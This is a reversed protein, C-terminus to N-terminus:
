EFEPILAEVSAVYAQSEPFVGYQALNLPGEYYAAITLCRSNGEVGALYALFAASMRINDSVSNINMREGILTNAIFSATAPMIQGTGIAGASSVVDQQWGSEQWAIAELLPLSLDYYNAWREFLPQLALRNPSDQLPQPLVGWPGSNAQFSSCFSSANVTQASGGSSSSSSSGTGASGPIVLQTGIPLVNNPNLGNAEALQDVTIGNARSIAWLSDGSRVTYNKTAFGAAGAAILLGLSAMVITLRIRARM